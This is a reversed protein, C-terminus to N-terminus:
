SKRIFTNIICILSFSRVRKPMPKNRKLLPKNDEPIVKNVSKRVLKRIEKKELSRKKLTCVKSTSGTYGSSGGLICM